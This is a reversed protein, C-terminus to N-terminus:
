AAATPCQEASAKFEYFENRSCGHHALHDAFFKPRGYPDLDDASLAGLSLATLTEAIWGPHPACGAINVVPLGARSRFGTGSCAAM